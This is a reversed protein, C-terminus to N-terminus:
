SLPLALVARAYTDCVLLTDRNVLLGRPSVPTTSLEGPSPMLLTDVQGDKVRRVAANATDAVYVTGDKDVALGTPSAFCAHMADGDEFGETGSGAIVQSQGLFVRLVRHAGTEAVYLARDYWFLGTPEHLDKCYVTAQGNPTIRIIEGRGTNAVYLNGNEDTALGTPHNYVVGMDKVLLTPDNTSANITEVKGNRLLRLANNSTDSVAWGELFASIAWPEGFFCKDFTSDNYGGLPEGSRDEVSEAGAYRVSKGSSVKWICKNYVDTVLLEGSETKVLGSAGCQVDMQSVPEPEAALATLGPASLLAMILLLSILKKM